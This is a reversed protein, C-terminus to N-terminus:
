GTYEAIKKGHPFQGKIERGKYLSPQIGAETVYKCAV